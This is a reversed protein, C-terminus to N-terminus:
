PKGPKRAFYKEKVLHFFFPLDNCLYRKWLRRPELILRWLWELGNTQMWRPARKLDGSIFSFSAGVEMALAIGGERQYRDIWLIGKPIGLSVFLIDPRTEQLMACIKENERPDKEFGCEPAYVGSVVLGPFQKQLNRAAREAIGAPSGLLFVSFNRKAALKCTKEMLDTGNIREQLPTGLFRAAWLLPVGDPVVLVARRYIENDDPYKHKIMLHDVNATIIHSPEPDAVLKEIQLLVEGMTFNDIRTQMITVFPAAAASRPNM